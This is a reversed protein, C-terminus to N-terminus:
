DGPNTGPILGRRIAWEMRDHGWFRDGDPLLLMPVGFIGREHYNREVTERLEERLTEDNSASAVAAGDLEVSEAARAIVEPQVVDEGHMWRADALALGFEAGKGLRDACVFAAHPISWDPDEVPPRGLEIGYARTLRILDKINYRQKGPTLGSFNPFSPLPYFPRWRLEIQPDLMPLVRHAAIWAFPSRFSFIFDIPGDV